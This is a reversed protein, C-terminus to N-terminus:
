RGARPEVALGTAAAPRLLRRQAHVARAAVAPSGTNPKVWTRPTRGLNGPLGFYPWGDKWTVPSLGTLRGVSNADMMSFGWWEGAPTDCSAARTCRWVDLAVGPEPSVVIEFPPRSGVCGRDRASGSTKTRASRRISRGPGTSGTPARPRCACAGLSGPAPSTTSARRDQLLAAGEGM